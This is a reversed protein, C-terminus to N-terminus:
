QPIGFYRLIGDGYKATLSAKAKPGLKQGNEAIYELVTMEKGSIKSKTGPIDDKFMKELKDRENKYFAESYTDDFARNAAASTFKVFPRFQGRDGEAAKQWDAFFRDKDIQRQAATLLQAMQAAQGGPTNIIDPIGLAMDRFAQAAKLQSENLRGSQLESVLKKVKEQDKLVDTNIVADPVGAMAALNSLTAVIPQLFEQAKGSTALSQEKPLSAYITALPILQQQQGRAATARDQQSDFYNTELAKARVTEMEGAM